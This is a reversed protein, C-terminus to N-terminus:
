GAHRALYLGRGFFGKPEYEVDLGADRFSAMTEEVTFLGLEHIETAHTIGEPRTVLYDFRLISIRGCIESHSARAVKVEDSEATVLDFRNPQATEPTFWPEVLILGNDALHNRFNLFTRTLNELTRVYGIASFLCVVADYRRGLDFDVMDARTFSGARNKERAIDVFTEEIDIGDVALGYKEHLIRAHEGTGCAVDLVTRASPRRKELLAVLNRSEEEYDKFKSYILDYHRASESFM